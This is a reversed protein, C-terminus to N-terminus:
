DGLHSFDRRWILDCCCEITELDKFVGLNVVESAEEFVMLLDQVLLVAVKILFSM